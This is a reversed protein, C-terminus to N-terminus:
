TGSSVAIVVYKKPAHGTYYFPYCTTLMLHKGSILPIRLETESELIEISEVTYAVKKGDKTKVTIVDGYDVDKLAKLHNRNRHGYVVCVGEQGPKASSTLWGPNADLTSEEVGYAVPIESKGIMLTFATDGEPFTSAQPQVAPTPVPDASSVPRLTTGPVPIPVPSPTPVIKLEVVQAPRQTYSTMDQTNPHTWLWLALLGLILDVTAVALLIIKQKKTMNRFLDM